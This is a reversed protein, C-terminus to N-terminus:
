FADLFQLALTTIHLPFLTLSCKLSEKGHVRLPNSFCASFGDIWRCQPSYFPSTQIRPGPWLLMKAKTTKLKSNESANQHIRTQLHTCKIIRHIFTAYVFSSKVYRYIPNPINLNTCYNRNVKLEKIKSCLIKLLDNSPADWSTRKWHNNQNFNCLHRKFDVTWELMEMGNTNLDNAGTESHNM